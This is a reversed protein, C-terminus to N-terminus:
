PLDLRFYKSERGEETFSERERFGSRLLVQISAANDAYTFAGVSRVAFRERLEPLFLRVAETAVGKGWLATEFLCYSLMADPDDGGIGCAWVDGVYAGDAYISRGYSGAGPLLTKEYEALAEEESKAKQPLFKRIAETQTRRFYLLANERTRPQLTIEVPEAEKQMPEAGLTCGAFVNSFPRASRSM